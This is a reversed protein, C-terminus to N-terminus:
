DETTTKDVELEGRYIEAGDQAVKEALVACKVRMPSIDVGLMDTVDDRDMELLEDVTKGQLEKSLMSASAQSIACGDGSFAVREIREEDGEDDLVVDMRIEDGCMPNEGVHTFTPDELQGYNRPNKYHDLIQQRYMDSGLGM